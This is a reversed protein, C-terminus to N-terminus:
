RPRRANAANGQACPLCALCGRPASGKGVVARWDSIPWLVLRLAIDAGEAILDETWASM